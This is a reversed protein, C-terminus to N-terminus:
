SGIVAGNVLWPGTMRFTVDAVQKGDVPDKPAIDKVYGSMVVTSGDPSVMQYGDLTNNVWASYLGAASANGHTTDAMDFHITCQLPSRRMMGMVFRDALKDQVDAGFENKNLAPPTVDTVEGITNYVTPTASQARKILFGHSNLAM